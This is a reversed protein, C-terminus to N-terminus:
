HLIKIDLRVCDLHLQQAALVVLYDLAPPISSAASLICRIKLWVCEPQPHLFVRSVLPEDNVLYVINSNRSNLLVYKRSAAVPDM